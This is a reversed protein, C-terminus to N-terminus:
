NGKNFFLENSEYDSVYEEFARAEEASMKDTLSSRIQEDQVARALTELNM